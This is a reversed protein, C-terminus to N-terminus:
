PLFSFNHYKEKQKISIRTYFPSSFPIEMLFLHITVDM